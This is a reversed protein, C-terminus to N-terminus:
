PYRCIHETLPLILTIPKIKHSSAHTPKHLRKNAYQSRKRRKQVAQNLDRSQEASTIVQRKKVAVIAKKLNM